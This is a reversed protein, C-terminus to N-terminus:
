STVSSHKSFSNCSLYLMLLIFYSDLKYMIIFFFTLSLNKSFLFVTLLVCIWDGYLFNVSNRIWFKLYSLFFAFGRDFWISVTFCCEWFYYHWGFQWGGSCSLARLTCATMMSSVSNEAVLYIISYSICISNLFFFFSFKM